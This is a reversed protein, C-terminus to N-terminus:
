FNYKHRLGKLDLVVTAPPIISRVLENANTGDMDLRLLAYAYITSESPLYSYYSTPNFDTEVLAYLQSFLLFTNNTRYCCTSANRLNM